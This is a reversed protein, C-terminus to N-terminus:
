FKVKKNRGIALFAISGIIPLFIIVLAWILKENNDLIKSNILMIIAVIWLLPAGLFAIMAILLFLLEFGGPAGFLLIM